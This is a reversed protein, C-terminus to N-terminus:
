FFDAGIIIGSNALAFLPMILCSVYPHLTFRETIQYKKM